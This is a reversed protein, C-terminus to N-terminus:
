RRTVVGPASVDFITGPMRILVLVATAKAAGNVPGGWVIRRGDRLVLTVQEPSTARLSGLRGAIGRPLGHLVTLAARTAEPSAAELRFLGRPVVPVDAVATGSYDLLQWTSGHRVAVVPVREVVTVRLAHPWGRSVTVSGVAALARVRRTVAATDVRALPTGEKVGVAQSIQSASLRSEGTIVIRQVALLSSALVVWGLVVLPLCV